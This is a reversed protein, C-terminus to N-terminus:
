LVQLNELEPLYKGAPADLELKGREVLQMTAVATVAKTMSAIAFISQTTVPIRSKTDRRGFAGRYLTSHPGAVMMAAAPIANRRVSAAMKTNISTTRTSTTAAFALQGFDRRTLPNM